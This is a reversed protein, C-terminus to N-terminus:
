LGCSVMQYTHECKGCTSLQRSVQAAERLLKAEFVARIEDPIFVNFIQNENLREAREGSYNTILGRHGVLGEEEKLLEM